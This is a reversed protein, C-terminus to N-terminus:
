GGYFLVVCISVIINISITILIKSKNLSKIVILDMIISNIFQSIIWSIGISYLGYRNMFLYFILVMTILTFLSNFIVEKLKSDAQLFEYSLNTHANMCVGLLLLFFLEMNQIMLFNPLIPIVILLTIFLANYTIWSINFYRPIKNGLIIRGEKSKLMTAFRPFVVIGISNSFFWVKTALDFVSKYDGVENMSFYKNVLITGISLITVQTLQAASLLLSQSLISKFEGKNYQPKWSGHPLNVLLRKAYFIDFLRRILITIILILVSKFLIVSVILVFHKSLGSILNFKSVQEFNEKGINFTLRITTPLSLLYDLAALIVLLAVFLSSNTPFVYLPVIVALIPTVIILILAIRIYMGVASQMSKQQDNIDISQAIIRTFYKAVGMEVFYIYSTLIVFISYIGYGESGLSKIALPIFAIGAIGNILNVISISFLNKKM